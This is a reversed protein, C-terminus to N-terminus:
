CCVEFYVVYLVYLVWMVYLVYEATPLRADTTHTHLHRNPEGKVM